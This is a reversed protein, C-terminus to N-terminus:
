LVLTRFISIPIRSGASLLSADGPLHSTQHLYQMSLHAAPQGLLQTESQKTPKLCLSSTRINKGRDRCKDGTCVPDLVSDQKGRITQM